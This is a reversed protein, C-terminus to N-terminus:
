GPMPELPRTAQALWAAQTADLSPGVAERVEKHYGDLWAIETDTLMSRDVLNLDIPARTLTEFRLMPRKGGEDAVVVILNEIRIGYAGARYYGPENSVIMGPELAVSNAVKSIRHPGEHVSLYSGVGHGTGHDYDLGLQWLPQRALADLQSGTTGVPFRALALAIHGKLVATFHRRMEPTPTGIAITRTIDTTGDLYQGGSDLLFLSGPELKRNTEPTAHYHVIAGNPGAGSITDFSPGRYLTGGARVAYLRDAADIETLTGTAAAVELWALYRTIAAGDRVHAARTGDLEIPNKRARPLACPDAAEVPESGAARVREFVWYPASRPDCLLRRGGAVAADIGSGLELPDHLGVDPGLHQGLGPALKRRDVFLDVRGDAHAIAFSLPMPANPVDGGRVNLLWAISAPDSLVCAAAGEKVILAAIDRRKATSPRGAFVEDHPVIPAIPPPPQDSWVTDLPNPSAGVFTVGVKALASRIKEVDNKTHLWPDFGVKAGPKAHAALWAEPPSQTHHHREFLAGDVQAEAQLTYRGDVFIAGRDALVAALGFSGTFGTLWALRRARPPLYEGQHEDALPVVFGDFGRRALEARLAALRTAGNPGSDEAGGQTAKLARLQEALEPSPRPAVLTLWADPDWGEPAALVGAVLERVDAVSIGASSAALLRALEADGLFVTKPM